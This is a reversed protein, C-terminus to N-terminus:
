RKRAKLVQVKLLNTKTYPMLDIHTFYVVFWKTYVDIENVVGNIEVVKIASVQSSLSFFAGLWM